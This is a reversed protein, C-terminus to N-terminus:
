ANDIAKIAARLRGINIGVTIISRNWARVKLQEDKLIEVMLQNADSWNGTKDLWYDHMISAPTHRGEPYWTTLDTIYGAPVIVTFHAGEYILPALVEYRSSYGQHKRIDLPTTFM